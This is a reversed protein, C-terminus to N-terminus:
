MEAIRKELSAITRESRQGEPLSRAYAVADQLTKKASEKDGKATYIDARVRYVQLKRPGYVRKLARDSAALAEDWKGLAKYALALRAPPNYDTPFDKETQELMPIAKEPTGLDLYGTLRHPDYVARQEATKAKAAEGELFAVWEQKLTKAGAEDKAEERASILSQYLGSVDDGSLQKRVAPDDFEHRTAKEFYTVLEGRGPAKADLETACGLASAAVNAGSVSGKLRPYLDRALATCRENAQTMSLAFMLSEATRGYSRWGKPAKQLVEEYLKAAEVNKGGAALKDAAALLTDASSKRKAGYGRASDDLIKTLQPVTAGGVYRLVVGDNRGDLVMLTPLAPIPYKTLFTANAANETDVSLWVFRGAYRELAKDTFVFARM